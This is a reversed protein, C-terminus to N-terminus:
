PNLPNEQRGNAPVEVDVVWRVSNACPCAGGVRALRPMSKLANELPVTGNAVGRQLDAWHRVDVSACYAEPLHDRVHGIYREVDDFTGGDVGIMQFAHEGRRRFFGPHPLKLVDEDWSLGDKTGRDAKV